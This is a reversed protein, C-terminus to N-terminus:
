HGVSTSRQKHVLAIPATPLPTIQVSSFADEPYEEQLLYNPFYHGERFANFYVGIQPHQIVDGSNDLIVNDDSVLATQQTRDRVDVLAVYFPQNPGRQTIEEGSALLPYGEPPCSSYWGCIVGRFGHKAHKFVHGVSFRTESTRMKASIPFQAEEVEQSIRAQAQEIKTRLLQEGNATVSGLSILLDLDARAASLDGTYTSHIVIRYALEEQQPLLFISQNLANLMNEVKGTGNFEEILNRLLRTYVELSNSVTAFQIPLGKRELDGLTLL